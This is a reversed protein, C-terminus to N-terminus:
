WAWPCLPWVAGVVPGGAGHPERLTRVDEETASIGLVMRAPDGIQRDAIFVVSMVLLLLVISGLLRRVFYSGLVDGVM